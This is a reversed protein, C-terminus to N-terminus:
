KKNFKGPKFCEIQLLDKSEIESALNYVINESTQELFVDKEEEDLNEDSFTNIKKRKGNTLNRTKVANKFKVKCLCEIDTNFASHNSTYVRDIKVVLSM